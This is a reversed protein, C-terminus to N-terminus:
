FGVGDRRPDQWNPNKAIIEVYHRNVLM